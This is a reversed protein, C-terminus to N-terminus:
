QTTTPPPTELPEKNKMGTSTDEYEISDNGIHTIRIHNKIIDGERVIRIEDGDQLFALRPSNVPTAGYGFFKMGLQPPPPPAPPMPGQPRFPPAIPQQPVTGGKVPDVPLAHAVFINRGSAKYDTSRTKELQQIPGSYDQVDLPAYQGATGSQFLGAAGIRSKGVFGYWVVAAIALLVVLAVIEKKQKTQAM